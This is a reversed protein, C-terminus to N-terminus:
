KTIKPALENKPSNSNERFLFWAISKSKLGLQSKELSPKERFFFWKEGIENEFQYRQYYQLEFPDKTNVIDLSIIIEINNEINFFYHNM